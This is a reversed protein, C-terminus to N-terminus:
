ASNASKPQSAWFQSCLDVFVEKTMQVAPGEQKRNLEGHIELAMETAKLSAKNDPSSIKAAINTACKDRTAGKEDLIRSMYSSVAPVKAMKTANTEPKIQDPWIERAAQSPGVELANDAFQKQKATLGDKDRAPNRDYGKPM